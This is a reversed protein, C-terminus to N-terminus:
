ASIADSIERLIDEVAIRRFDFSTVAVGNNESWREHLGRSVPHVPFM